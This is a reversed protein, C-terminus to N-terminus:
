KNRIFRKMGETYFIRTSDNDDSYIFYADIEPHANCIAVASDLGLVMFATAYADATACNGAVVTSSLINHQVPYGTRPNITHAYKKGDKYYFNRYNGSTALGANTIEIVTQLEQNVSLSDDIPKNIGIRWTNMKANKGKLRLEGGINIMYNEIGKSELLNAVHDVGYGKAIASCDLMTRSDQKVIKGDKMSIKNFGVFQRLSDITEQSVNTSSDFGFGWANVLPAVTIDYAGGTEESISRAMRYVYALMSDAKFDTNNNVRTIVSQKNFPSLSNDVKRLETEIENKLNNESQYTIKYMTGFIFGEDTQYPAQKKLILVTGVILLILFPLQWKLKKRDTM